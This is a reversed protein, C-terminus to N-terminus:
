WISLSATASRLGGKRRLVYSEGDETDLVVAERESKSGEAVMRRNVVGSVHLTKLDM